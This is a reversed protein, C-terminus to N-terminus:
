AKVAEPLAGITRGFRVLMADLSNQQNLIIIKPETSAKEDKTSDQSLTGPPNESKSTKRRENHADTFQNRFIYQNSTRLVKWVPVKKGKVEIMERVRVLRHVWTFIEAKELAKIAECVTDRCCGAKKAIAEYSPFCLGSKSNHFGYLLVELVEQFARTIPGKHQKGTRNQENYVKAHFIIRAKDNRDLPIGQGLGFIKERRCTGFLKLM